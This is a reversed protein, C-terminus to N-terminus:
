MRIRRSFRFNFDALALSRFVFRFVRYDFDGRRSKPISEGGM